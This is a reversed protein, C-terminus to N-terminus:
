EVAAQAEVVQLMLMLVQVLTELEEVVEVM